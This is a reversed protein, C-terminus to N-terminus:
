APPAAHFRVWKPVGMPFSGVRGGSGALSMTVPRSSRTTPTSWKASRWLACSGGIPVPPMYGPLDSMWGRQTPDFSLWLNRVLFQGGGVEPRPAETLQFDQDRVEGVPRRALLVQRNTGESM